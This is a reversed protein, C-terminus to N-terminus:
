HVGRRDPYARKADSCRMMQGQDGIPERLNEPVRYVGCEAPAVHACQVADAQPFYVLRHM